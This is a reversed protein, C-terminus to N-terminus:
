QATNALLAAFRALVRATAGWVLPDTGQYFPVDSSHARWRYAPGGPVLAWPFDDPFHPEYTVRYTTPANEILYDLPITFTRDVEAPSFTGEYNVLSAVYVHLARGGPGDQAGLSGLIDLQSPRVLLEECTERIAADLPSEDEEIGGGPLCVEGPQVALTQARVELLVSLGAGERVLPIMVAAGRSPRAAHELAWRVQSIDM